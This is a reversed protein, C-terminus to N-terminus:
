NKGKEFQKQRGYFYKNISDPRFALARGSQAVKLPIIYSIYYLIKVLFALLIGEYKIYIYNHVSKYVYNYVIDGNQSCSHFLHECTLTREVYPNQSIKRVDSCREVNERYYTHLIGIYVINIYNSKRPVKM